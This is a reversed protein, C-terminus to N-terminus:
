ILKSFLTGLDLINPIGILGGIIDIIFIAAVTVVIGIIGTTIKKKATELAQKDGGAGIISIAGTVFVFVFWIFAIITMLGIVSSIFKTFVGIGSGVDQGLPGFGEFGTDPSLPINDAMLKNMM